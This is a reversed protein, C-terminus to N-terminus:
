FTTPASIPNSSSDVAIGPGGLEDLIAWLAVENAYVLLEQSSLMCAVWCWDHQSAESGSSPQVGVLVGGAEFHLQRDLSASGGEERAAAAAAQTVVCGPDVSSSEGVVFYLDEMGCVHGTAALELLANVSIKRRLILNRLATRCVGMCLGCANTLARLM